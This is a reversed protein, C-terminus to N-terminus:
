VAKLVVVEEAEKWMEVEGESDQPCAMGVKVVEM